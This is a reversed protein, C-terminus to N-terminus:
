GGGIIYLVHLTDGDKVANDLEDGYAIQGGAFVSVYDHLKGDGDFLLKKLGPYRVVLNGLCERVTKGKVTVSERNGTHARLYSAVNITVSM